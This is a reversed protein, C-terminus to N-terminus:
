VAPNVNPKAGELCTSARDLSLAPAPDLAGLGPLSTHLDEGHGSGDTRDNRLFPFREDRKTGPASFWQKSFWPRTVTLSPAGLLPDVVSLHESGAPKM